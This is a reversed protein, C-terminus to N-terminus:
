HRRYGAILPDASVALDGAMAEALDVDGASWERAVSSHVSVWGVVVSGSIVPSLMQARVGYLEILARPPPSDTHVVDPQVLTRRNAMVWQATV